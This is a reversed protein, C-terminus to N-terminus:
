FHTKRNGKRPSLAMGFDKSEHHLRRGKAMFDLSLGSEGMSQTMFKLFENLSGVTGDDKMVEFVSDSFIFLSALHCIKQIENRYRVDPSGGIIFDPTRLLAM